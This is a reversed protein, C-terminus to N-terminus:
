AKDGSPPAPLRDDSLCLAVLKRMSSQLKAGQATSYPSREVSTSTQPPLALEARGTICTGQKCNFTLKAKQSQWSYGLTVQKLPINTYVRNPDITQTFVCTKNNFSFQTGGLLGKLTNWEQTRSLLVQTKQSLGPRPKVTLKQQAALDSAVLSGGLCIISILLSLNLTKRTM